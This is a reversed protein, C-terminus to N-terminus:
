FFVVYFFLVFVKKKEILDCQRTFNLDVLGGLRYGPQRNVAQNLQSFLGHLMNGCKLTPDPYKLINWANSKRNSDM